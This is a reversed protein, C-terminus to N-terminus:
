AVPVWGEGITEGTTLHQDLGALLADLSRTMSKELVLKDMVAGLPGFKLKYAMTLSVETKGDAATQVEFTGNATKMPMSSDVVDIALKRQDVSETVRETLHNGDYLHCVREAGVGSSPTGDTIPSSKVGPHFRHIEGFDSLVEWVREIPTDVTRKLTITAVPNDEPCARRREATAM